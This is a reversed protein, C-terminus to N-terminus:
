ARARAAMLGNQGQVVTNHDIEARDCDTLYIAAGYRLWEDKENQHYSM